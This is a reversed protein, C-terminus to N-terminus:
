KQTQRNHSRLITTLLVFFFTFCNYRVLTQRILQSEHYPLLNVLFLFFFSKQNKTQFRFIKTIRNIIETMIQVGKFIWEDFNLVPIKYKFRKEIGVSISDSENLFEKWNIIKCLSKFKAYCSQFEKRTKDSFFVYVRSKYINLLSKWNIM